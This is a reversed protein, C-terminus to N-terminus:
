IVITRHRSAPCQINVAVPLSAIHCPWTEIFVDMVTNIGGRGQPGIGLKNCREQLEDELSALTSNPNRSGVERFLAKKALFAKEAAIKDM